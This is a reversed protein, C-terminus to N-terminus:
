KLNSMTVGKGERKIRERGKIYIIIFPQAGQKDLLLVIPVCVATWRLSLTTTAETLIFLPPLPAVVAVPSCNSKM